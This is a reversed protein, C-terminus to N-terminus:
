EELPEAGRRGSNKLVRILHDTFTMHLM